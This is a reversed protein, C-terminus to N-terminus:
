TSNLHKIYLSITHKTRRNYINPIEIWNNTKLIEKQKANNNDVTCLVASFGLKKLQKLRKKNAEKGKGGPGNSLYLAHSVAIDPCGPLPTILGSYESDDIKIQLPFTM